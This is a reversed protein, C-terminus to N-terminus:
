PAVVPTMGDLRTHLRARLAPWETALFERFVAGDHSYMEGSNVEDYGADWDGKGAHPHM